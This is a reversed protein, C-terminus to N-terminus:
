GKFFCLLQTTNLPDLYLREFRTFGSKQFIEQLTQLTEPFDSALIHEEVM